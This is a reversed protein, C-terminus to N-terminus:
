RGAHISKAHEADVDVVIWDKGRLIYATGANSIQCVYVRQWRQGNWVMYRTPIRRGYGSATYSLGAKQWDLEVIKVNAGSFFQNGVIM